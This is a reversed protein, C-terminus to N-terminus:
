KKGRVGMYIAVPVTLIQPIFLGIITAELAFYEIKIAFMVVLITLSLRTVFGLGFQRKQTSLAIALNRIKMSLYSTNFLGVAMGLSMGMTVTRYEPYLAWGLLLVSIMLLSLRTVKNVISIIEDM